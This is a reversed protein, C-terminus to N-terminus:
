NAVAEAIHGYHAEVGMGLSAAALVVFLAAALYVLATRATSEADAYAAPLLVLAGLGASLWIAASVTPSLTLGFSLIARAGQLLLVGAVATVWAFPRVDIDHYVTFAASLMVLAYLTQAVGFLETYQSAPFGAWNAWFIEGSVLLAVGGVLGFLWAFSQRDDPGHGDRAERVLFLAGLAAGAAVLVLAVVLPNYPTIANEAAPQLSLGSRM